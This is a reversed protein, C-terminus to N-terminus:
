HDQDNLFNDDKKDFNDTMQTPTYGYLEGQIQLFYQLHENPTLSTLRQNFDHLLTVSSLTRLNIDENQIFIIEERIQDILQAFNEKILHETVPAVKFVQKPDLSDLSNFDIQPQYLAGGRANPIQLYTGSNQNLAANFFQFSYLYALRHPNIIGIRYM